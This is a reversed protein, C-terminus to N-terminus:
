LDLLVFCVLFRPSSMHDPLTILEQEALLVWQTAGTLVQYYTIFSSFVMPYVNDSAVRFSIKSPTFVLKINKM